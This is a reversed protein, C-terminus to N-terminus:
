SSKQTHAHLRGPATTCGNTNHCQTHYARHHSKGRQSSFFCAARVYLVGRTEKHYNLSLSSLMSIVSLAASSCSDACRKWDMAPFTSRLSSSHHCFWLADEPPRFPPCAVISGFFKLLTFSKKPSSHEQFSQTALIVVATIWIYVSRASAISLTAKRASFM